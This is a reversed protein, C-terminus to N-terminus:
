VIDIKIEKPKLEAAKPLNIELVGDRYKARVRDAQVAM